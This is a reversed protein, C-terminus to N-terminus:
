GIWFRRSSLGSTIRRSYVWAGTPQFQSPQSHSVQSIRLWTLQTSTLFIPAASSPLSFPLPNHSVPDPILSPAIAPCPGRLSDDDSIEVRPGAALLHQIPPFRTILVWIERGVGPFHGPSCESSSVQPPVTKRNGTQILSQAPFSNVRWCQLAAQQPGRTTHIVSLSHNRVKM